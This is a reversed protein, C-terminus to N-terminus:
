EVVKRIFHYNIDIHNMHDHYTPNKVLHIASEGDCHMTINGQLTKFEDMLRELWVEEKSAETAVVYEVRTTSLAVM